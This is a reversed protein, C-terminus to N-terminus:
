CLHCFRLNRFNSVLRNKCKDKLAEISNVLTVSLITNIIIGFFLVFLGPIFGLLIGTISIILFKYLLQSVMVAYDKCNNFKRLDLACLLDGASRLTSGFMSLLHHSVQAIRQLTSFLTGIAMFFYTIFAAYTDGKKNEDHYGGGNEGGAIKYAGHGTIPDLIIYRAGIYGPVSVADTHTIVEKGQNIAQEIESM